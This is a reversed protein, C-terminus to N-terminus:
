WFLLSINIFYQNIKLSNYYFLIINIEDNFYNILKNDFHKIKIFSFIFIKNLYFLNILFVINM